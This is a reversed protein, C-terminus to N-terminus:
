IGDRGEEMEYIRANIKSLLKKKSRSAKTNHSYDKKQVLRELRKLQELNLAKLSQKSVIQLLTVREMDETSIDDGAPMGM